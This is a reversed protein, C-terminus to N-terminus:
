STHEESRFKRHQTRKLLTGWVVVFPGSQRREDVRWCVVDVAPVGLLGDVPCQGREVAHHLDGFSLHKNAVTVDALNDPRFARVLDALATMGAGDSREVDCRIGYIMAARWLATAPAADRPGM